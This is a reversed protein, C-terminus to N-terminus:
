AKTRVERRREYEAYTMHMKSSRYRTLRISRLLADNIRGNFGAKRILTDITEQPNWGQELAIDPLYTASIDHHWGPPRFNIIIGHHEIDWDLWHKAKEFGTLLSVYCRLNPLEESSIPDFRDDQLASHITYTQLGKLINIDTLSGICGRLEWRPATEWTVFLGGCSARPDINAPVPTPRGELTSVLHDFCHEAMAPTAVTM